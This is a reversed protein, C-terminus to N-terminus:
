MQPLVPVAARTSGGCSSFVEVRGDDGSEVSAGNFGDHDVANRLPAAAPLVPLAKLSHHPCRFFHNPSRKRRDHVNTLFATQGSNLANGSVGCVWM